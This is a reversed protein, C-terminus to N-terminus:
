NSRGVCKAQEMKRREKSYDHNKTSKGDECHVRKCDIAVVTSLRKAIALLKPPFSSSYLYKAPV